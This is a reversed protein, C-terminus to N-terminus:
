TRTWDRRSAATSPWREDPIAYVVVGTACWGHLRMLIHYEPLNDMLWGPTHALGDRNHYTTLALLPRHRELTHRAGHLAALENGELHLKILSPAVNLSDIRRLPIQRSGDARLRSALGLGEAFATTGDHDGLACTVTRIRTAVSPALNAIRAALADANAADPEVAVASNFREALVDIYRCLVEGHWAGADLLTECAGFAALVEPIFYRDDISVPADEFIWEERLVRWALLQLHAARSTDDAWGDLVRDVSLLDDHDLPGAFWGNGMGTVRTYPELLDYVPVVDRWGAEALADRIPTFASTVVCVAIRTIGRQEPPIADPQYVPIHDLLRAGQTAQRDVAFAIPQDIRACIDAAMRGLKGAGYLALPRDSVPPATAPTGQVIHELLAKAQTRDPAHSFSM